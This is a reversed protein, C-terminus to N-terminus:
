AFVQIIQRALFESYAPPIAQSLEDRIMWDIGMAAAGRPDKGVLSIFGDANGKQRANFTRGKGIIQAHREHPPALLLVNSEFRRHRYIKLGFMTGCLTVGNQMPADEVNEIIWDGGWATLLRRVDPILMPYERGSLWPLHRMRSYGQCPPSAWILDFTDLPEREGRLWAMADDCVFRDGCYRPQPEIDVGTVHFGANQLGKTAGGAKCFLDLAKPKAKMM